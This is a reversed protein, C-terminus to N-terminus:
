RAARLAMLYLAIGATVLALGVWVNAWLLAGWGIGQVFGAIEGTKLIRGRTL